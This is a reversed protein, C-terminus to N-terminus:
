TGKHVILTLFGGGVKHIEAVNYDHAGLKVSRSMEWYWAYM